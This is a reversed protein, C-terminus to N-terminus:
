ACHVKEWVEDVRSKIKPVPELFLDKVKDLNERDRAEFRLTLLPETVSVRMLGWGDKFEARVGDLLSVQCDGRRKLASALGVLLEAQDEEHYPLRIDPTTAYAPLQALLNALSGGNTRVLDAVLLAAYLGDDGGLVAFFYHGSIEGGFLANEKLLTTKIFAHGSKEMVPIGGADTVTEPVLRSCKLDFVVKAGPNKQLLHRALLAIMRDSPVVEGREDVFAVRDGDGDFAVGLAAGEARVVACLSSLNQAVAPNPERNPFTGDETCFLPCVEYGLDAFVGPAITSHCGNGCDLVVKMGSPPGVKFGAKVYEVYDSLVSLRAVNGGPRQAFRKATVLAELRGIEEETIPWDSLTIKFGNYRAPNHSATVMVGGAIGVKRKAFYFAPTPVTGLDLVQCGTELLGEVLAGKLEPTSIRVDGGVVVPGGALATGVARGLDNALERNLEDPYIGRVDCAKFVGM